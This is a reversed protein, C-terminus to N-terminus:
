SSFVVNPSNDGFALKRALTGKPTPDQTPKGQANFAYGDGEIYIKYVGQPNTTKQWTAIKFNRTEVEKYVYDSPVTISSCNTLLLLAAFIKVLIKMIDVMGGLM